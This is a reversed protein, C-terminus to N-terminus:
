FKDDPLPNFSINSLGKMRNLSQFSYKHSRHWPAPNWLIVRPILLPSYLTLFTDM